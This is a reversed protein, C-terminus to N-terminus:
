SKADVALRVSRIEAESSVWTECAVAKTGQVQPKHIDVLKARLEARESLLPIWSDLNAALQGWPTTAFGVGVPEPALLSDALALLHIM